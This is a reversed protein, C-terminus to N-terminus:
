QIGEPPPESSGRGRRTRSPKALVLPLEGRDGTKAAVAWRVVEELQQRTWQSIAKISPVAIDGLEQLALQVVTPDPPPVPLSGAVRLWVKLIVGNEVPEARAEDVRASTAADLTLGPLFGLNAAGWLLAQLYQEDTLVYTSVTTDPPTAGNMGSNGM